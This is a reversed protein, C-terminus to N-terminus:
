QNAKRVEPFRGIVPVGLLNEIEEDRKVRTDVMDAVVAGVVSLFLGACAAIAVLKLRHPGSPQLPVAASDIVKVATVGMVDQAVVDTTEALQNAVKAVDTASDGTVSITIIRTSNSGSVTVDYGDLGDMGLADAAQSSVYASKALEVVDNTLMQSASLDNNSLNVTEDASTTLVYMSLTATYEDPLFGYAYVGAVAAFGVTVLAVAVWYRKLLNIIEVVSMAARGDDNAGM